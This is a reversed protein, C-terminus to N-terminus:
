LTGAGEYKMGFGLVHAGGSLRNQIAASRAYDRAARILEPTGSILRAAMGTLAACAMSTGSRVAYGGGLATSVVGVGPGAFRIEIGFNSFSAFFAGGSMPKGIEGAQAADAPYSDPIGFASVALSNDCRAPFSVRPEGKNGAAVFVVAGDYCAGTIAEQLAPDPDDGALSLNIVDCDDHTALMIAKMVSYNTARTEGDGYVRGGWLQAAPAIGLYGTRTGNGAIIGAVHTGHGLGNDDIANRPEGMVANTGDSVTLDEHPGIGSDIVAVKVGEGDTASFPACHRRVCDSLPQTIEALQIEDGDRLRVQSAYKGWCDRKPTEVSLIDAVIDSSGLRLSVAGTDDTVASDGENNPASTFVVVKIGVIPQNSAGNRVHLKIPPKAAAGSPLNAPERMAAGAPEYYRLPVARGVGSREYAIAAAESMRVLKPGNVQVSDIVDVHGLPEPDVGLADSSAGGVPDFFEDSSLRLSPRTSTIGAFRGLFQWELPRTATIGRAPLLIYRSENVEPM